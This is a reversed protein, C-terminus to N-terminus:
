FVVASNWAGIFTYVVQVKMTMMLKMCKTCTVHLGLNSDCEFQLESSSFFVILAHPLILSCNSMIAYFYTFTSALVLVVFQQKIDSM